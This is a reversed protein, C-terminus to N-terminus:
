FLIIDLPRSRDYYYAVIYKGGEYCSHKKYLINFVYAYM